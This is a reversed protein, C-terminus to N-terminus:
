RLLGALRPKPLLGHLYERQLKQWRRAAPIRPQSIGARSRRKSAGGSRLSRAHGARRDQGSAGSRAASGRDRAIRGRCQGGRDRQHKGDRWRCAPRVRSRGRAAAVARDHRGAAIGGVSAARPRNHGGAERRSRPHHRHPRAAGAARIASTGPSACDGQGRRRCDAALVSRRSRYRPGAAGRRRAAAARHDRDIRRDGPDLRHLRRRHGSWRDQACAARSRGQDARRATEGARHLGTRCPDEAM